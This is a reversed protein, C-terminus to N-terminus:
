KLSAKKSLTKVPFDPLQPSLLLAVAEVAREHEDEWIPRWLSWGVAGLTDELSDSLQDVRCLLLHVLEHVLTNQQEEANLQWFTSGLRMTATTAQPHPSTDAHADDPAADDLVRVQWHSLRLLPLVLAIWEAVVVVRDGHRSM